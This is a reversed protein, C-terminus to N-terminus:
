ISKNIHINNATLFGLAWNTVVEEELPYYCSIFIILIIISSKIYQPPAKCVCRLM